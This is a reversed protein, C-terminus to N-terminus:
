PPVLELGAGRVLAGLEAMEAPSQSRLGDLAYARQLWAYKGPTAPNYPLLSLRSVGRQRAAAAIAAIQEPTGNHQPICPVRVLVEAGREVLRALNSLIRANDVGTDRRHLLPDAHKLDYLFLDCVGALRELLEPRCLGTTELATHLGADQLLALLAWCFEPQLTPEGGTLTVGGGSADFFPRLRVARDVIAGATTTHGKMELADAPCTDRCRECRLCLDPDPAALPDFSRQHAPCVEVCGGCQVCRGGYWVIQPEALQSEPSHCWVCRLPCGKLYVTLRLGPGDHTATEDLSFVIGEVARLAAREADTM